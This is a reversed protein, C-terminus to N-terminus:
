KGISPRREQWINDLLEAIEKLTRGQDTLEKLIKKDIPIVRRTRKKKAEEAM